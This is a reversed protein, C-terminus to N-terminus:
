QFINIPPTSPFSWANIIKTSSQLSYDGKHEPERVELSHSGSGMQHLVVYAPRDPRPSSLLDRSKLFDFGPRADRLFSCNLYKKKLGLKIAVSLSKM